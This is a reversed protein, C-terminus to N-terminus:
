NQIEVIWKGPESIVIGLLIEFQNTRMRNWAQGQGNAIFTYGKQYIKIM